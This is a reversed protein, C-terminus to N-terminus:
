PMAASCSAFIEPATLDMLSSVADRSPVRESGFRGARSAVLEMQLLVRTAAVMMMWAAARICRVKRSRYVASRVSGSCVGM